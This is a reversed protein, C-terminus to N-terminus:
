YKQLNHCGSWQCLMCLMVSSIKKGRYVCFFKKGTNFTLVKIAPLSVSRQIPLYHILCEQHAELCAKYNTSGKPMETDTIVADAAIVINEEREQNKCKKHRKRTKNKNIKCPRSRSFQTSYTSYHCPNMNDSEGKGKDRQRKDSERGKNRQRQRETGKKM